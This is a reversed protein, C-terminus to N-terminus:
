ASLNKRDHSTLKFQKKKNLYLIWIILVYYEKRYVAFFESLLLVSHLLM